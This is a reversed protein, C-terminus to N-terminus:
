ITITGRLYTVAGGTILTRDANVEVGLEGGRSSRQAARMSSRGLKEAWYPGLLTHASGTVPDEDIGSQPAFFRSVFDHEDGKSTVIVGRAEAQKMLHFNPKLSVLTAEDAVVLMYDTKGKLCELIEADIAEQLAPLLVAPQPDDSPFDLTYGDTTRTVTLVGSQRSRFSITDGEHGLETMMSHAAALTAHGCLAVEVAPTFWRIEYGEDGGMVFATESLNNELAIQQLTEDDLWHDLPCVAAPNGKFVESAFADVQYLPINMFVLYSILESELRDQNEPRDAM